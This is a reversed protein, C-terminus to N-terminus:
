KMVEALAASFGLLSIPVDVQPRKGQHDYIHFSVTAKTGAKLQALLEPKLLLEVRCGQRECREVEVRQREGEDVKLFTGPPLAIGLPLLILMGPTDLNPLRGVVALLVRNGKQDVVRQRMECFEPQVKELPECHLTWDQLEQGDRGPAGPASPTPTEPAPATSEPTQPAQARAPGAAALAFLAAILATGALRIAAGPTARPGAAGAPLRGPRPALITM